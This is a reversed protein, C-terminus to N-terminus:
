NVVVNCGSGTKTLTGGLGSKYFTMTYTCTAAANTWTAGLTATEASGGSTATVSAPATTDSTNSAYLVNLFWDQTAASAPTEEIRWAGPEFPGAASTPCITGATCGNNTDGLGWPDGVDACQISYQCENQNTGTGDDFEHGPGGVTTIANTGNVPVSFGTLQGAYQYCGNTLGCTSNAYALSSLMFGGPWIGPYPGDKANEARQIVFKNGTITPQNISHLLWKKQFTSNTSIVQDFVVLYGAHGEPIFVLHRIFKQVRQTRNSMGYAPMAPNGSFNTNYAPTLDAAAYVFNPSTENPTPVYAMLTGM